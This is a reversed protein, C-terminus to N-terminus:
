LVKLNLVFIMHYSMFRMKTYNHNYSEKKLHCNGLLDIQYSMM